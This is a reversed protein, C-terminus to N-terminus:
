SDEKKRLYSPIRIRDKLPHANDIPCRREPLRPSYNRKTCGTAIVTIKMEEDLNNDITNGFFVDAEDSVSKYILEMAANIEFM